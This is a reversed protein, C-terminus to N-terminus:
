FYANKKKRLLYAFFPAGLFATIVGIPLEQPSLITRALTDAAVLFAAGGFAAFPLVVRHDPGFLLRVIHPIVLGVFGITGSVSVAAATIFSATVLLILRVQDVAIGLHFAAEEGFALANLERSFGWILVTGLTVSPLIAWGYNWESLSLSGMLWFMISQMKQGSMALLLSLAAAIFAQVVVGSLILTEMRIRGRQQALKIVAWLTLLGSGFAVAPLTWSGLWPSRWGSVLVVAAGLAAGSSVGLIYPDALPNRLVGQYAVGAVALSAGVLMGVFIRPLRIQWVIVEAADSWDKEVAESFFPLRFFIVKWVTTLTLEASGVSVSAVIVFALLLVLTPLWFVLTKKWTRRRFFSM